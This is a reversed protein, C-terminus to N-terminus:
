DNTNGEEKEVCEAVSFYPPCDLPRFSMTLVGMATMLPFFVVVRRFLSLFPRRIGM